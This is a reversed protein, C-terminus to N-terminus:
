RGLKIKYKVACTKCFTRGKVRIFKQGKKIRRGCDSCNTKKECVFLGDKM